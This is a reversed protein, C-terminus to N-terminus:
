RRMETRIVDCSSGIGDTVEVVSTKSGFRRVLVKEQMDSTDPVFGRKDILHSYLNKNDVSMIRLTKGGRRCFHEFWQLTDDFHGNNLEDNIVSLIEYAVPTQRWQGHVSGVRFVTWEIDSHPDNDELRGLSLFFQAVTNIMEVLVRDGSDSEFKLGHISRFDDNSFSASM